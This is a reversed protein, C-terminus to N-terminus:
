QASATSEDRQEHMRVIVKDGSGSREGRALALALRVASIRDACQATAVTDRRILWGGDSPEILYIHPAM